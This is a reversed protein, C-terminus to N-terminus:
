AKGNDEENEPGGVILPNKKWYAGAMERLTARVRDRAAAAPNM